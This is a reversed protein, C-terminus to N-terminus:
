ATPPVHVSTGARTAAFIITGKSGWSGGRGDVANCVIQIPGGDSGVRKLKGDAFFISKGDTPHGFRATDEALLISGSVRHQMVTIFSTLRSASRRL